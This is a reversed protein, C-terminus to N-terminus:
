IVPLCAVNFRISSPNWTQSTMEHWSALFEIFRHSSLIDPKGDKISFRLSYEQEPHLKHLVHSLPRYTACGLLCWRGVHEPELDAGRRASTQFHLLTVVADLKALKLHGQLQAVCHKVLPFYKSHSCVGGFLPCCPRQWDASTVTNQVVTRDFGFIRDVETAADPAALDEDVLSARLPFMHDGLGLGSKWAQHGSFKTLTIDMRAHNIRKKQANSLSSLKAEGIKVEDKRDLGHKAMSARDKSMESAIEQYRQKSRPSLSRWQKGLANMTAADEGPRERTSTRSAM